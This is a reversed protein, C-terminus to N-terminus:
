ARAKSRAYWRVIPPIVLPIFLGILFAAAFIYQSTQRSFFMQAVREIRDGYSFLGVCWLIYFAVFLYVHIVQKRNPATKEFVAYNDTFGIGIPVQNEGPGQYLVRLSRIPIIPVALFVVWETTIYSGDPHFDRAGYFTTGIGQFSFAM